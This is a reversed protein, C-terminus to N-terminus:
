QTGKLEHSRVARHWTYHEYVGACFAGFGAAFLLEEIPLLSADLTRPFRPVM